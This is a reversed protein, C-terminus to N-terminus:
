QLLNGIKNMMERKHDTMSHAYRKLTVNPNKHGLIESLTKVDVGVELARTAFTHRLSHFGRHAIELKQLLRKFSRQYSRVALPKPSESIVYKNQAHQKMWKLVSLLQKPIPITRQSTETKPSNTIRGFHGNTDKGDFCTKTVFILENQFDIDTWELALLEGIRLGTYLSLLIGHMKLKKSSKVAEEIKRQEEKTFCTIKKENSKPRRIKGIINNQTLGLNYAVRLSSQIVTITANVTNPSLGKGTKKNGTSLLHCVLGQLLIPSLNDLEYEGINERLQTYVIECYRHYTKLKATPKIYNELWTSAWEQYNM